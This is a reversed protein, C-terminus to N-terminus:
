YDINDKSREKSQPKIKATQTCRSVKFADYTTTM